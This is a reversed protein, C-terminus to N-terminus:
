PVPVIRSASQSPIHVRIRTMQYSYLVDGWCLNSLENCRLGTHCILLFARRVEDHKCPTEYLRQVDDWCLYVINRNYCYQFNRVANEGIFPNEMIIREQYAKLICERLKCFYISKTKIDLREADIRTRRTSVSHSYPLAGDLYEKFGSVWSANVDAFTTDTSCYHELCALTNRYDSSMKRIGFKEKCMEKFYECVNVEQPYRHKLIAVQEKLEGLRQVAINKAAELKEANLLKTTSDSEPMLYMNLSERSRQGHNNIDIYLSALGGRITRQRVTISVNKDYVPDTNKDM